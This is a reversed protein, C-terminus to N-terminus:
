HYLILRGICSVYSVHTGIGPDALDVLSPYVAVWELIRGRFIGCVSFGPLSYDM